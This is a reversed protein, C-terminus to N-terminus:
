RRAMTCRYEHISLSNGDAIATKLSGVILLLPRVRGQPDLCTLSEAVLSRLSDSEAASARTEVRLTDGYHPRTRAEGTSCLLLMAASIALCASATPKM